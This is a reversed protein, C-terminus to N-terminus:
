FGVAEAAARRDQQERRSYRDIMTRSKHGTQRMIERDSAGGAVAATVFGSRLSHGSYLQANFDASRVLRKVVWTISAPNLGTKSVCGWRDVARLLPGSEQSIGSIAIWNRIAEVPCTGPASGYPIEVERGRGEQDNKSRPIKVTLGNKHSTLHEMRVAALESRRLAGALGVLLIARDRAAVIPNPEDALMQEIMKLTLPRKGAQEVGLTRRIGKIVASVEPYKESAPLFAAEQKHQANIAALRREITAVKRPPEGRWGGQALDAIYLAVVTPTSPMSPVGHDACWAQFHDWDSRYAVVTNPAQSRSAYERAAEAAHWLRSRDVASEQCHEGDIEAELNVSIAAPPVVVMESGPM